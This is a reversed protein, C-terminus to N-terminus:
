AHADLWRIVDAIVIEKGPDNFIEHYFGDYIKLTKDLSAAKEHVLRSGEPSTLGDAGGHLILIPLSIQRATEEVSKMADVLEAGLRASIKGKYVLPDAFYDDIVKRDRSIQTLDLSVLGAKPALRSLLRGIFLVASSPEDVAKISPGSLIAGAFERQRAPLYNAAILGGMSHGILFLKGGPLDEKAKALLADLGDLYVSFAPVFGPTGESKGHGWHDVGLVRFGNSNLAAAVHDYRGVHEGFGHSALVTAKAEGEAIWKRVRLKAGAAKSEPGLTLILEDSLVFDKM